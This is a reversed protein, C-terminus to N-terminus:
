NKNFIMSSFDPRQYYSIERLSLLSQVFIKRQQVSSQVFLLFRVQIPDTCLATAVQDTILMRYKRLNKFGM